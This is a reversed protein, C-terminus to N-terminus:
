DHMILFHDPCTGSMITGVPLASLCTNLYRLRQLTGGPQSIDLGEPEQQLSVRLPVPATAAIMWATDAANISTEAFAPTAPSSIITAM